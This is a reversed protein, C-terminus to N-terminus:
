HFGDYTALTISIHALRSYAMEDMPGNKEILELIRKACEEDSFATLELVLVGSEEFKRLRLPLRLTQMIKAANLIDDPSVLDSGRARNYVCYVDSLTMM